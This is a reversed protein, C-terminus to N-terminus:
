VCRNGWIYEQIFEPVRVRNLIGTTMPFFSLSASPLLLLFVPLNKYHFMTLSCKGARKCLVWLSIREEQWGAECSVLLATLDLYIYYAFALVLGLMLVLSTPNSFVIGINEQGLFGIQNVEMMTQIVQSSLDALLSLGIVKYLLEFCLLTTWNKLGIRLGLKM